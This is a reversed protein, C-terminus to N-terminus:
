RDGLDGVELYASAAVIAEATWGRNAGSGDEACDGGSHVGVLHGSRTLVGAGSSGVLTDLGSYYVQGRCAGVLRGEAIVKPRGRPHQIVALLDGPQTALRTPTIAPLTDLRILAFDPADSQELVTGETVLQEGDPEEEVNFAVVPREQLRVCHGATLVVPGAAAAVLTGTCAGNILVVAEERDEVGAVEGRYKHIPTLDLTPGCQLGQRLSEVAM